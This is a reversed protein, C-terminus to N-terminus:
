SRRTSKQKRGALQAQFKSHEVSALGRGRRLMELVGHYDQELLSKSSIWLGPFVASRYVGDGDPAIEKNRPLDVERVRALLEAWALHGARRM